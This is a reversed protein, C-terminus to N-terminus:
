SWRRMTTSGSSWNRELSSARPTTKKKSKGLAKLRSGLAYKVIGCHGHTTYACLCVDTMVLLGPVQAKIARVAQPVIGDKAYAGSGREDKRDALGFLLVASVGHGHLERCESVVEDVSLQFQGPMSPIPARVRKGSRVFLPMILQHPALSTERILARLAENQRMRRPRYMHVWRQKVPHRQAETARTRHKQPTM